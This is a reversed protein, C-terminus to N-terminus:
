FFTDCKEIKESTEKKHSTKAIIVEVPTKNDFFQHPPCDNYHLAIIKSRKVSDHFNGIWVQNVYEHKITEMGSEVFAKNEQRWSSRGMDEAPVSM